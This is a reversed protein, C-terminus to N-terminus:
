EWHKDKRESSLRTLQTNVSQFCCSKGWDGLLGRWLAAPRHSDLLCRCCHARGAMVSGRRGWCHLYACLNTFSISECLFADKVLKKQQSLGYFFTKKRRIQRKWTQVVEVEEERGTLWWGTERERGAANRGQRQGVDQQGRCGEGM